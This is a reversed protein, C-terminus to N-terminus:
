RSAYDLAAVEEATLEIDGAPLLDNLQEVSNAGTIPASITPKALMWALAVAAIAVGRATAIKELAEIVNYGRENM